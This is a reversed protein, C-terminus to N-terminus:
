HAAAADPVAPTDAFFALLEAVMRDPQEEPVYHGSGEIAVVRVDTGKDAMEARLADYSHEGTLTLIPVTPPTYTALDAIDRRFTQYWRNGAAVAGPREYAHAYVARAQEDVADPVDLMHEYLWDIILRFRGALLHEPLGRLQNFAFWWVYSGRGDALAAAQDDTAPLMPVTLWSPDPVGHDITVLKRVSDPFTAALHYGVGAGIDHGAVYASEYGLREILDHIDRAMTKKDYGDAPMDSGGMGRLDVATVRHHRALPPLVKRFQWWTQPWGGLLILPEGSGGTIHHLRIGNVETHASTFEGPLSAALEADTPVATTM